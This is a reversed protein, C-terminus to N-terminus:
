QSSVMEPLYCEARGLPTFAFALPIVLMLVGIAGYV